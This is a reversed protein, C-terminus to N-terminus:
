VFSAFFLEKRINFVKLKDYHQDKGDEDCGELSVYICILDVFGLLFM